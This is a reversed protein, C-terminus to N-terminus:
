VLTPIFPYTIEKLRNWPNTVIQQPHVAQFYQPFTFKQHFQHIQVLQKLYNKEEDSMEVEEPGVETSEMDVIKESTEKQSISTSEKIDAEPHWTIKVPSGRVESASHYKTELLPFLLYDNIKIQNWPNRVLHYQNYAQLYQPLNLEQYFQNIKSLQKLYVLEEKTLETKPSTQFIVDNYQKYEEESINVSEESSSLNKVEHKALSVALLCTFIFFNM